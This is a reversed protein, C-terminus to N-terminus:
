LKNYASAPKEFQSPFGNSDRAGTASGFRLQGNDIGVISKSEAPGSAGAGEDILKLVTVGAVTATGAAKQAFVPTAIVTGGGSCSINKYDKAVGELKLGDAGQLTITYTIDSAGKGPLYPQCIQRWSGVIASAPNGPPAPASAAPTAPTAVPLPTVPSSTAAPKDCAAVLLALGLAVGLWPRCPPKLFSTPKMKLEENIGADFKFLNRWGAINRRVLSARRTSDLLNTRNCGAVSRPCALMICSPSSILFLAFADNKTPEKRGASQANHHM